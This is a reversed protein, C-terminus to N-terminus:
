RTPARLFLQHNCKTIVELLSRLDLILYKIAEKM